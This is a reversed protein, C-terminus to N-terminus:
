RPPHWQKDPPRVTIILQHSVTSSNGVTVSSPLLNNLSYSLHEDQKGTRGARPKAKAYVEPQKAEHKLQRSAPRRTKTIDRPNKQRWTKTPSGTEQQHRAQHQGPKNPLEPDPGAM